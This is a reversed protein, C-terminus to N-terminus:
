PARFVRVGFSPCTLAFCLGSVTQLAHTCIVATVHLRGSAKLVASGVAWFGSPDRATRRM